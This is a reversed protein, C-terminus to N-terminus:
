LVTGAGARLEWMIVLVVGNAASVAAAVAVDRGVYGM